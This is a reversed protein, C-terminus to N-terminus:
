HHTDVQRSQKRAVRHRLSSRLTRHEAAGSPEQLSLGVATRMSDSRRKNPRRKRSGETKGANRNKGFIGAKEEHYAWLLSAKTKYRQRWCHKLSLKSQSGSDTTGDPVM